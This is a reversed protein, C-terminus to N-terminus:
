SFMIMEAAPGPISRANAMPNRDNSRARGDPNREVTASNPKSGFTPSPDNLMFVWGVM